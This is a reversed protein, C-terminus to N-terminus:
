SAGGEGAEGDLFTVRHAYNMGGRDLEIMLDLM